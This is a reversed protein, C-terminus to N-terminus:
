SGCVVSIQCLRCLLKDLQLMSSTGDCMSYHCRGIEKMYELVIFEKFDSRKIVSRMVGVIDMPTYGNVILEKASDHATRWDCSKCDKLISKVKEPPPMDCVRMVNEKNVIGFGNVTSQLNNIANRMDGEATFILSDLGSDVYDVKEKECIYMLRKLIQEEKLRSFRIIACRSQIPEIIKTSQNCALAFRTSDAHLEMLRRLAQQASETMWDVEDLVVIKHMGAPLDQLEKAFSKIKDRVVDIGREDSANLEMTAKQFHPGLLERALALVSTTKGTGPPGALLVNPMNGDKAVMRLRKITEPNGEVDSLKMPRYKEIWIDSM